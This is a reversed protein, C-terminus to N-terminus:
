ELNFCPKCNMRIKILRGRTCQGSRGLMGGGEERWTVLSGGTSHIKFSAM